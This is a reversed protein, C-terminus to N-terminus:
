KYNCHHNCDNGYEDDYPYSHCDNTIQRMCNIFQRACRNEKMRRIEVQRAIKEVEKFLVDDYDCNPKPNCRCNCNNSCNCKGNENCM